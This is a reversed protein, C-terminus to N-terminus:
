KLQAQNAIEQATKAIEAPDGLYASNVKKIQQDFEYVMPVGYPINVAAIEEDSINDLYKVLARISNGHASIIITKGAKLQPIITEKWYPLLRAQVDQLSESLPVDNPELGQESLTFRCYDYNPKISAPPRVSYSRRWLLMQKEGYQRTIDSKNLGQLQGYHRENLRWSFHTPIDTLGMEKLVIALTEISRQLVSAFAIDFIFGEKKLRQGAEQAEKRGRASLGVDTWGTFRNEKNWESEGHRLLVLRIVKM